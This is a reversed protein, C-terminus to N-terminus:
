WGEAVRAVIVRALQDAALPLAQTEAAQLDSGIFFETQGIMQKDEFVIKGTRTERLVVAAVLTLRYERPVAQNTKLYRLSERRVEVVTGELIVDSNAADVVQLSGDAQLRKLVAHTVQAQLQPVLTTNRFVPAAITRYNPNALSGFRYSCGCLLLSVFGCLFLLGGRSVKGARELSSTSRAM